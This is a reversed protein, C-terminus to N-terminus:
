NGEAWHMTMIEPPPKIIMLPPITTTKWKETMGNDNSNWESRFPPCPAPVFATSIFVCFALPVWRPLSSLFTLLIHVHTPNLAFLPCVVQVKFLLLLPLPSCDFGSSWVVGPWRRRRRRGWCSSRHTTLPPIQPTPNAFCNLHGRQRWKHMLIRIM